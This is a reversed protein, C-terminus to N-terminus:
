CKLHRTVIHEVPFSNWFYNYFGPAITIYISNCTIFLPSWSYYCSNSCGPCMRVLIGTTTRSIRRLGDASVLAQSPIIEATMCVIKSKVEGYWESRFVYGRLHCMIRIILYQIM